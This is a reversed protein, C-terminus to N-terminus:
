EENSRADRDGEGAANRGAIYKEVLMPVLVQKIFATL